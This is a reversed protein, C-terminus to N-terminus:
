KSFGNVSGEEALQKLKENMKGFNICSEQYVKKGFSKGFLGHWYEGQIIETHTNDIPHLIFYHRAKFFFLLGGGWAWTENIKLDLIEAKFKREGEGKKMRFNVFSGKKITGRIEYIYPNWNPYSKVDLLINWITAAGTNIIIHTKVETPTCSGDPKKASTSYSSLVMIMCIFLRFYNFFNSAKM